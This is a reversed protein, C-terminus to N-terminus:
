SHLTYWTDSKQADLMYITSSNTPMIFLKGFNTQAKFLIYSNYTNTTMGKLLGGSATGFYFGPKLNSSNFFNYTSDTNTIGVQIVLHDLSCYNFFKTKNDVYAETAISSWDGGLVEVGNVGRSTYMWTKRATSEYFIFTCFGDNYGKVIELMGYPSPLLGALQPSTGETNITCTVHYSVPIIKNVEFMNAFTTTRSIGLHDLFESFSYYFSVGGLKETLENFQGQANKNLGALYQLEAATITSTGVKGNVDSVLARAATLNKGLLNSGAGSTIDEMKVLKNIVRDAIADILAQVNSEKQKGILGLADMAKVEEASLGEVKEDLNHYGEDIKKMNNNVKEIDYFEDESDLTLDLYETNTTM